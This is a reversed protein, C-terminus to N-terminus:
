IGEDKRGGYLYYKTLKRSPIITKLFVYGKEEVFPVIYVYKNIEIVFQKQHKYKGKGPVIAVLSGNEIYSVIVEFSIGREGILKRNKDGDWKFIAM